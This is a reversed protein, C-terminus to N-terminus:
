RRKLKSRLRSFTGSDLRLVDRDWLEGQRLAYIGEIDTWGDSREYRVLWVTPGILEDQPLFDELNILQGSLRCQLMYGDNGELVEGQYAVPEGRSQPPQVGSKPPPFTRSM